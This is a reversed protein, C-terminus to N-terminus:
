NVREGDQTSPQGSASGGAAAPPAGLLSLADLVAELEELSPSRIASYDILKARIAGEKDVIWFFPSARHREIPDFPYDVSVIDKDWFLDAYRDLLTWNAKGNKRFLFWMSGPDSVIAPRITDADEVPVVVAQFRGTRESELKELLTLSDQGTQTRFSPFMLIVIPTGRFNELNIDAGNIDKFEELFFADKLPNRNDLHVQAPNFFWLTQDPRNNQNPKRTFEPYLGFALILIAFGTAVATGIMRRKDTMGFGPIIGLSM